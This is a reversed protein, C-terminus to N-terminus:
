PAPAGLTRSATTERILIMGDYVQPLVQPFFQRETALSGVGRTLQPALLWGSASSGETAKRLDLFVRPATVLDEMRAEFSGQPAPLLPHTSLTGARDGATYKGRTTTMGLTVYEKGLASKLAEGMRNPIEGVHSNAASVFIKAEDGKQELLWLLNEAMMADRHRRRARWEMAQAVVKAKRILGEVDSRNARQELQFRARALEDAVRRALAVGQDLRPDYLIRLSSSGTHYVSSDLSVQYDMVQLDPFSLPAPTLPLKADQDINKDKFDSGEPDTGEFDLDLGTAVKEGDIELELSDFWVTGNGRHTVGFSIGKAGAPIELSVEHLQWGAGLAPERLPEGLQASDRDSTGSGPTSVTPDLTDKYFRQDGEIRLWLGASDRDLGQATLWGRVTLMRGPKPADELPAQLSIGPMPYIGMAEIQALPQYSAAVRKALPPALPKLTSLIDEVAQQSFKMDFGAFSLGADHHLNQDRMWIVLDLFAEINWIKEGLGALLERPDGEGRRVFANLPESEAFGAELAFVKYGQHQALYQFLRHKLRYFEHSGHTGEGVALVRAPGLFDELFRLDESPGGPETSTLIHTNDALWQSEPSPLDQAALGSASAWALVIIWCGFRIGPWCSRGPVGPTSSPPHLSLFKM